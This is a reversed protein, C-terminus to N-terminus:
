RVLAHERLKSSTRHLKRQIIEVAHTEVNVRNNSTM